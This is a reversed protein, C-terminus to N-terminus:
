EIFFDKVLYYVKAYQEPNAQINKELIKLFDGVIEEDSRNQVPIPDYVTLCHRTLSIRQLFVPLVVAGSLRAIKPLGPSFRAKRGLFNMELWQHGERGDVALLLCEGSQLCRIASRPSHDVYHFTVPFTERYGIRRQWASKRIKNVLAAGFGEHAPPEWRSGLQHTKFGMYGIGPMLLEENGFHGHALIVGKGEKLAAEIKELGHYEILEEMKQRNLYPYLFVESSNLYYNEITKHVLARIEAESKEPFSAKLGQHIKAFKGQPILLSLRALFVALRRTLGMPLREVLWRFPFWYAWRALEQILTKM